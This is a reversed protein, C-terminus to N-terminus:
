AGRTRIAQILSDRARMVSEDAGPQSAIENLQDLWTHIGDPLMTDGGHLGTTGLEQPRDSQSLLFKEEEMSVNTSQDGTVDEVPQPGKAAVAQGSAALDEQTPGPMGGQQLASQAMVEDANPIPITPQNDGMPQAAEGAQGSAMKPTDPM